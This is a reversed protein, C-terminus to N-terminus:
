QQTVEIDISKLPLDALKAIPVIMARQVLIVDLIRAYENDNNSKVDAAAIAVGRVTSPLWASITLM